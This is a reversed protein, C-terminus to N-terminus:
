CTQLRGGGRGRSQLQIRLDPGQPIPCLTHAVSDRDFRSLQAM